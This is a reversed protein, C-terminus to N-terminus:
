STVRGGEKERVKIKLFVNMVRKIKEVPRVVNEGLSCKTKPLISVFKKVIKRCFLMLDGERKRLYIM